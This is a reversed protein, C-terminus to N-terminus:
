YHQQARAHPRPVGPVRPGGGSDLQKMQDQAIAPRSVYRCLRELAGREDADIAVAAHLDFGELHAHLPRDSPAPRGTWM